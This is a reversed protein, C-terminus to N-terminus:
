WGRESRRLADWVARAHVAQLFLDFSMEVVLTAALAMQLPGRARVTVVRELVFIGTVAAWLPHLHLAHDVLLSWGITFLYAATVMIGLFTMLQRAWYPFTLRTLGYDRLNEIAGRKWRLRQRYLDGWSEMVETTLRCEKPSLVRYGLHLLALTLENDETLVRTDYVQAHEGPLTGEARARAVHRLTGVSFLTATGTLVLVKGKLRAVDRAYRAYENRQLMGVFAGGPRGTFVGGVGGVGEVLNRRAAAVFTPVLFSDADMVLVAATDALEPLVIDLAQNLAGAKKHENAVTEFVVAGAAAAREATADTCNDACVVILDPVREQARLSAIAAAIQDEENHAPILVVIAEPDSAVERAADALGGEAPTTHEWATATATTV